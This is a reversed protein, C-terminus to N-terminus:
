FCRRQRPAIGPGARGSGGEHQSQGAYWLLVLAYVIDALLATRAVACPAQQSPDAFGLFLTTARWAVPM